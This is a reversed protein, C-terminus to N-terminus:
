LYRNARRDMAERERDKKIKAELSEYSKELNSLTNAPLHNEIKPKLTKFLPAEKLTVEVIHARKAEPKLNDWSSNLFESHKEWEKVIRHVKEKTYSFDLKLAKAVKLDDNFDKFNPTQVEAEKFFEKAIKAFEKGKEDNDFCLYVKAEQTHEALYEFAKKHEQTIQGNTSCLLANEPKIKKLELFSLSDISSEAIILTKVNSFKNTGKTKLIELGKKGYCLQKVFKKEKTDPNEKVIPRNLYTVYGKQSLQPTAKIIEAGKSNKIARTTELLYSPVVINKYSDQKLGVIEQLLDPNLDRKAFLPNNFPLEDFENFVNLHQKTKEDDQTKSLPKITSSVLKKQLDKLDKANYDFKIGRNKCFNHINGRDNDNNPNFYLYDGNPYRSVIVLDGTELNELARYQKSDKDKKISWGNSLLIEDLPLKTLNTKTM